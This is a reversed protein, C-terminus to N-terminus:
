DLLCINLLTSTPPAITITGYYSGNVIKKYRSSLSMSLALTSDSHSTPELNIPTYPAYGTLQNNVAIFPINGRRTHHIDYGGNLGIYHFEVKIIHYPFKGFEKTWYNGMSDEYKIIENEVFSQKYWIDNIKIYTVNNWIDIELM